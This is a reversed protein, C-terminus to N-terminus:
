SGLNNSLNFRVRRFFIYDLSDTNKVNMCRITNNLFFLWKSYAILNMGANLSERIRILNSYCKGLSINVCGIKAMDGKIINKFFTKKIECIRITEDESRTSYVIRYPVIIEKSFFDFIMPEYLDPKDTPVYNLKNLFKIIKKEDTAFGREVICEDKTEKNIEEDM